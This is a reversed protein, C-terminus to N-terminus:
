EDDAGPMCGTLWWGGGRPVVQSVLRFIPQDCGCACTGDHQALRGAMRDATKGRYLRRNM